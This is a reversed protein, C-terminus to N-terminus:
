FKSEAELETKLARALYEYQELSNYAQVAIRFCRKGGSTWLPVQIHYKDILIQQLYDHYKTERAQLRTWRAEDIPNFLFTSLSALMSEPAPPTLKLEECLMRRAQICLERNRRILAPWGGPMLSGMFEIAAPIALFATTDTTGVYEFETWFQPRNPKPKEAHNSLVVPRFNAQKDSRVWLFASGKPSCIWKHCNATYYTPSLATLDLGEVLGPAHAGDILTEVGRRHLEDILPKIPLILGSSSTVHSILALRTKSTVKSLIADVIQDPSTLPFPICASVVNAGARAAIARANNCCAPYEHDNILIEDGPKLTLNHLVTAVGTTANPVPTIDEPRAHLFGALAHRAKDTLGSLEEVFFRVPEAELQARLKAQAELVPKPTAGFSGHNLFVRDPTLTWHKIHESPAPLTM